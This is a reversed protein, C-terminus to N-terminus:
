KLYGQGRNSEVPRETLPPASPQGDFSSADRSEQHVATHYNPNECCNVVAAAGGMSERFRRGHAGDHFKALSFNALRFLRCRDKGAIWPATTGDRYLSEQSDAINESNTHRPEYTSQIRPDIPALFSRM